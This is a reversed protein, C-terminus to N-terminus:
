GCKRFGVGYGNYGVGLTNGLAYIIRVKSMFGPSVSLLDGLTGAAVTLRDPSFHYGLFDFGREARGIFTKDPHKELLLGELVTNVLRVAKRLRWRTPAIVLWDDMFRVYFLGCGQMVDDLPKLFIAAMLPSLPCGLSIGKSVDRYNEGYCVTRKLYQWLLSLVHRDTIYEHLSELLLMHDISAYYSKIDSKMVHSGPELHHYADRVAKKAGGHGVVHVCPSSIEPALHKGLVIAMAKLVLSDAACWCELNGDPFRIEVLPSFRYEGELLIQQLEPKLQQWNRRLEWVDNNHSLNARRKCLWQYAEDIVPDSAIRHILKSM